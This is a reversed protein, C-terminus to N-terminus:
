VVKASRPFCENIIRMAEQLEPTQERKEYRRRAVDALFRKDAKDYMCGTRGGRLECNDHDCRVGVCIVLLLARGIESTM